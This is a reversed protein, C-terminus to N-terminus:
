CIIWDFHLIRVYMVVAVAYHELIAWCLNMSSDLRNLRTTIFRVKCSFVQKLFENADLSRCM